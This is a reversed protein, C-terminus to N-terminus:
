AYDHGRGPEIARVLDLERLGHQDLSAQEALHKSKRFLGLGLRVDQLRRGRSRVHRRHCMGALCNTPDLNWRIAYQRNVSGSM